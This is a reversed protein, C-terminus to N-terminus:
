KDHKIASIVAHIDQETNYIHPSIRIGHSRCDAAITHKRLNDLMATNDSFNLIVTGSRKEEQKPSVVADPLADILQNQLMRNHALLEGPKLSAFYNIAHAALAFPAISPTGGM